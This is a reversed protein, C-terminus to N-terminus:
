GLSLDDTTQLSENCAIDVFQEWNGRGRGSKFMGRLDVQRDIPADVRDRFAEEGRELGFEDIEM